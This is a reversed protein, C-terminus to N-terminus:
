EDSKRPARERCGRQLGVHPDEYHAPDAVVEPRVVEVLDQAGLVREGRVPQVVHRQRERQDRVRVEVEVKLESVEHLSPEPVIL